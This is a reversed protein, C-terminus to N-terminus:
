SGLCLPLFPPLREDKVECEVAALRRAGTVCLPNTVSSDELFPGLSTLFSEGSCFGLKAAMKDGSTKNQMDAEEQVM